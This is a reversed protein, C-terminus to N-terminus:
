QLLWGIEDWLIPPAQTVDIHQKGQDKIQGITQSLLDTLQRIGARM